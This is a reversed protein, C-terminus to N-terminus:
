GWRWLPLGSADASAPRQRAKSFTLNFTAFFLWVLISFGVFVILNPEFFIDVWGAFKESFDLQIAQERIHQISQLLDHMTLTFSIAIYTFVINSFIIALIFLLLSQLFRMLMSGSSSLAVAVRLKRGRRMSVILNEYLKLPNDLTRGGINARRLSQRM